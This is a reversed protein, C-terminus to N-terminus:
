QILSNGFYVLLRRGEGGIALSIKWIQKLTIKRKQSPGGSLKALCIIFSREFKLVNSHMKEGCGIIINQM